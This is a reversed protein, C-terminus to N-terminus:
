VCEGAGRATLHAAPHLRGQPSGEAMHVEEKRFAGPLPLRLVLQLRRLSRPAGVVASRPQFMVSLSSITQGNGLKKSWCVGPACDEGQEDGSHWPWSFWSLKCSVLVDLTGKVRFAVALGVHRGLGAEDEPEGLPHRSGVKVTGDMSQPFPPPPDVLTKEPLRSSCASELGLCPSTTGFRWLM